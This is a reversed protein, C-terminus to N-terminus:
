NAHTVISNQSPEAATIESMAAVKDPRKGKCWDGVQVAMEYGLEMLSLALGGGIAALFVGFEYESVWNGIDPSVSPATMLIYGVGAAMKAFDLLLIQITLLRGEYPRIVIDWVFGAASLVVYAIAQGLPVPALFVLLPILVLLRGNHVLTTLMAPKRERLDSYLAGYRSKIKDSVLTPLPCHLLYASFALFGMEFM